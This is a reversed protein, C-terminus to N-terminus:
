LELTQGDGPILVRSSAGEKEVKRRLKERTLSCHNVAEMHVAVVSANKATRLIRLVDGATMTIPFSWKFRAAGAYAVIVQPSHKDLAEKVPKCWITDGTIYLSPEDKAKLIYGSVRGMRKGTPGRGHRGGTRTIEIGQFIRNHSIPLVESFGEEKLRGEDGEQCLIPLSKPLVAMATKDFHDFHLHTLLVAQITNFFDSLSKEDSVISPLPVLPNPLKNGFTKIAPYSGQPALMPDVLFRVSDMEIVHCAHRLLQIKM